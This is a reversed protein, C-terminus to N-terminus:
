ARRGVNTYSSSAGSFSIPLFARYPNEQPQWSMKPLIFVKAWMPIRPFFCFDCLPLNPSYPAHPLVTVQQWALEEQVFVFRHGPLNDHLLLCNKWRWLKPHKHHIPDLSRGLIEKYSIKNVTAGEPIFEMHAIGNSYFFFWKFCRRAKQGTKNRNKRRPSVPALHRITAETASRVPFVMNTKHWSAQCVTDCHQTVRSMNLDDALIKYCLYWPKGRSSTRSSRDNPLAQCVIDCHQTVRSM